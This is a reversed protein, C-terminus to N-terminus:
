VGPELPPSSPESSPTGEPAPAVGPSVEVPPSAPPELKFDPEFLLQQAKLIGLKKYIADLRDESKAHDPEFEFEYRGTIAGLRHEAEIRRETDGDYIADLLGETEIRERELADIRRQRATNTEHVQRARSTAWFARAKAQLEAVHEPSAQSYVRPDPEEAKHCEVM